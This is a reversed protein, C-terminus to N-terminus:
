DSYHIGTNRPICREAAHATDFLCQFPEIRVHNQNFKPTIITKPTQRWLIGTLIQHGNDPTTLLRAGLDQQQAHAYRRVIPLLICVKKGRDIGLNGGVGFRGQHFKKKLADRTVRIQHLQIPDM